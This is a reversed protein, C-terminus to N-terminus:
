SLLMGCPIWACRRLAACSVCLPPSVSLQRVGERSQLYRAGESSSRAAVNSVVGALLLVMEQDGSEAETCALRPPPNSVILGARPRFVARHSKPGAAVPHAPSVLHGGGTSLNVIERVAWLVRATLPADFADAAAGSAPPKRSLEYLAAAATRLLPDQM